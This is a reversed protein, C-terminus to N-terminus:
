NENAVYTVARASGGLSGTLMVILQYGSGSPNPLAAALGSLQVGNFSTSNGTCNTFVGSFDYADQTADVLSIKGTFACGTSPDQSVTVTGDSSVTLVDGPHNFLTYNGALAAITVAPYNAYTWQESGTSTGSADTFSMSISLTQPTANIPDLWGSLTGQGDTSGDPFALGYEAAGVFTGSIQGSSTTTVNGVYQTGDDRYFRFEGDNLILGALDQGSIPDMGAWLGGASVAEPQSTSTAPTDGSDYEDCATLACVGAAVVILRIQIAMKNKDKKAVLGPM